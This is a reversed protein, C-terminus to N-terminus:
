RILVPVVSFTDPGPGGTLEDNGAGGMLRDQGDGGNMKDNGEGAILTDSGRNGNICDNGSTGVLNDDGNAGTQCISSGTPTPNRQCYVESSEFAGVFQINVGPRDNGPQVEINFTAASTKKLCHSDIDGSVRIVIPENLPICRNFSNDAGFLVGEMSLHTRPGIPDLDLKTVKFGATPADVKSSTAGIVISSFSLLLGAPNTLGDATCELTGIARERTAVLDGLHGEVTSTAIISPVFGSIISVALCIM